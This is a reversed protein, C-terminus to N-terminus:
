DSFVKKLDHYFVMLKGEIYGLLDTHNVKDYIYLVILVFGILKLNSLVFLLGVLALIGYIVQDMKVNGTMSFMRGKKIIKYNKM